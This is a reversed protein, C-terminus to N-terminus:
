NWLYIEVYRVQVLLPKRNTLTSPLTVCRVFNGSVEVYCKVYKM